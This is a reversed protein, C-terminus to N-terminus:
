PVHLRCAERDPCGAPWPLPLMKRDAGSLAWAAGAQVSLSFPWNIGRKRAGLASRLTVKAIEKAVM